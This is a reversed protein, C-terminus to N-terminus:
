EKRRIETRGEPSLIKQMEQHLVRGFKNAIILPRLYRYRRYNRSMMLLIACAFLLIVWLNQWILPVAIVSLMMSPKILALWGFAGQRAEASAKQIGTWQNNLLRARQTPDATEGLLVGLMWADSRIELMWLLAYNLLRSREEIFRSALAFKGVIKPDSFSKDLVEPFLGNTTRFHLAADRQSIGFRGHVGFPFCSQIVRPLDWAIHLYAHGILRYAPQTSKADWDDLYQKTNFQADPWKLYEEFFMEIVYELFLRASPNRKNYDRMASTVFEYVSHFSRTSALGPQPFPFGPKPFDKEWQPVYATGGHPTDPFASRPLSGNAVLEQLQDLSTVNITKRTQEDVVRVIIPAQTPPNAPKPSRIPAADIGANIQAESLGCNKLLTMLQSHETENEAAKEEDLAFHSRHMTILVRLERIRSFVEGYQTM